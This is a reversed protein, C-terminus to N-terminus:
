APIITIRPHEAFVAMVIDFYTTGRGADLAEIQDAIPAGNFMRRLASREVLFRRTEAPGLAARSAAMDRWRIRAATAGALAGYGGHLLDSLADLSEGLVWTEGAMFVRNIEAYFSPIDVVAAGEIVLERGVASEDVTM